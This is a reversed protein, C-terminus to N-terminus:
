FVEVYLMIYGSKDELTNTKEIHVWYNNELEFHVFQVFHSIYECFVGSRGWQRLESTKMRLRWCIECRIRTSWNSVRFLCNKAPFSWIMLVGKLVLYKRRNLKATVLIQTVICKASSPVLIPPMYNWSVGLKLKHSFFTRARSWHSVSSTVSAAVPSTRWFLHDRFRECYECSFM